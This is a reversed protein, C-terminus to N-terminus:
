LYHAMPVYFLNIRKNPKTILYNLVGDCVCVCEREFNLRFLDVVVPRDQLRSWYSWM